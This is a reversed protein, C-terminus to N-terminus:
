LYSSAVAGLVNNIGENQDTKKEETQTVTPKQM